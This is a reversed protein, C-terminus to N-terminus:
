FSKSSELKNNRYIEIVGPPEVPVDLSIPQDGKRHVKQYFVRIPQTRSADRVIVKIEQIAPEDDFRLQVNVLNTAAGAEVWNVASGVNVETDPAPDQSIVTGPTVGPQPQVRVTGQNLNREQLLQRAQDGTKGRLDPIRAKVIAPGSSVTLKVESGVKAEFSGRPDQRVVLGEKIEPHNERTPPSVKFGANQLELTADRETKGTVDPVAKLETGKSVVLLITRETKVRSLAEPDQSIIYGAALNPDFVESQVDSKLGADQLMRVAEVLSKSRVDPVVVVEGGTFLRLAYFVGWIAGGVLLFTVLTWVALPAWTPRQKPDKDSKGKREQRNDRINKLEPLVQTPSDQLHPIPPGDQHTMQFRTLDDVLEGANQYRESEDKQLLRLVIMELEPPTDPRLQSPAPVAEQIHKLAIGVPSDGKFPVQGTLMEYIVIGLSYLDSKEGTVNGRAQEPSFYHVSGIISGSHTVTSTSVARAIGFDTVKVREDETLLINHPKIDRHIIQNTHAHRLAEAIQKAIVVLRGIALPAENKILWNLTKGEIYEMVIFYPAQEVGVDYINVINPHSLSAVAQAERRFRRIFDEDNTYEPRLVKVAVLRKLWTDKAKYVLSMGGGGVVELIEYRNVLLTGIM